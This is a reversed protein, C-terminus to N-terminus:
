MLYMWADSRMLGKHMLLYKFATHFYCVRGSFSFIVIYFPLLHTYICKVTLHSFLYWDYSSNSLVFKLDFYKFKFAGSLTNKIIISIIELGKKRYFYECSSFIKGVSGWGCWLQSCFMSYVFHFSSFDKIHFLCFQKLKPLKANINSGIARVLYSM